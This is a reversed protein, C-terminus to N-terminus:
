GCTGRIPNQQNRETRRKKAVPNSHSLDRSRPIPNGQHLLLPTSGSKLLSRLPLSFGLPLNVDMSSRLKTDPRLPRWVRVIGDSFWGILKPAFFFIKFIKFHKEFKLHVPNSGDVPVTLNLFIFILVFYTQFIDPENAYLIPQVL